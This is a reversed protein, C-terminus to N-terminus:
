SPKFSSSYNIMAGIVPIMNSFSKRLPFTNVLYVVKACFLATFLSALEIM